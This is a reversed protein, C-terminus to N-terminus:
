SSCFTTVYWYSRSDPPEPKSTGGSARGSNGDVSVPNTPAM